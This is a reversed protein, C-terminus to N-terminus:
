IRPTVRVAAAPRPGDEGLAGAGPQRALAALEELWLRAAERWRADRPYPRDADPWGLTSRQEDLHHLEESLPPLLVQLRVWRHQEFDFEDRLLRGAEAGKEILSQIRAPDMDLNLGGEDATLRIEVVRERFGPLRSQLTDRYSMMTDLVASLLGVVGDIARWGAAEPRNAKPLHVAAQGKEHLRREGPMGALPNSQPSVEADPMAGLTIGFTPRSPLWRDFFHIPFNSCIGGDSLWVRRLDARDLQLKEGEVRRAFAGAQIAYLPVASILLPFSLSLRAGLAVPLDRWEPLYHFGKPPLTTRGPYAARQLWRLAYGPLYRGLEREDFLLHRDRFPVLMPQLESLNTAILQLEIGRDALDGFTLPGREGGGPAQPGFAIEDLRTFLWDTLSPGKGAGAAHGLCIGFGQSPLVFVLIACLQAIAGLLAGACVALVALVPAALASGQVLRAFLALFLWGAAGGAIAGLPAHVVLAKAAAALASLASLRGRLRHAGRLTALFVRLVPAAARSPQFLELLRGPRRLEDTLAALGKFGEEGRHQAAATVAAAIAGASAGGICRFDYKQHLALVAQPYVVGSTIGGKMILDCQPRAAM